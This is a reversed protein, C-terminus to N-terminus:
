QDADFLTATNNRGKWARMFTDIPVFRKAENTGTDNIYYGLTKGKPDVEAGTVYVTHGSSDSIKPDNWLRKTGMSVLADGSVRISATLAEPTTETVYRSRVGHDTLLHNMQDSSTGGELGGDKEMYESYYGKEFGEKTLAAVTVDVGRAKLAQYQSAM